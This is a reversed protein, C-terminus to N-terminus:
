LRKIIEREMEDANRLIQKCWSIKLETLEEPSLKWDVDSNELRNRLTHMVLAASVSVNFSETFGYMPIHVYEDAMEMATDSLGTWETGFMIATKPTIDLDHITVSKKHPSTAVIKYGESRLHEICNKTANEKSTYQKLDIWQTAGKAIEPDVKYKFENEIIHLDQFGFLDCSRVVASANHQQYMNEVVIAMHKTRLQSLRDFMEKKNDTIIDYFAALVQERQNEMM